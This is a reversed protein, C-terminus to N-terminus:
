RSQNALLAFPNNSTAVGEDSDSDSDDSGDNDVAAVEKEGGEVDDEEDDSDYDDDDDDDETTVDDVSMGDDGRGGKWEVERKRATVEDALVADPHEKWAEESYDPPQFTLCIRGDLAFRLIMNAGRYADPRGTRATLFGKKLAWAECMNYATWVKEDEPLTLDLLYPLDIREALFQVVSYPERLQAIPFSGMLVQMPKPVKSPFVLGPCDCLRVSETLYITQFHKTHGPTRSVSVVKKGCLSNIVSSKGVNPHGLTGITLRGDGGERGQRHDYPEHVVKTEEANTGEIKAQWSSLDIKDGFLKNCIGHIQQSAEKVISFVTKRQRVKMGRRNVKTGVLNYTPFSTFYVIHVGPYKSIFYNKWAAALPAPILDIKNLVVILQKGKSIIYQYLSPPFTAAAYRVDLIILLVDSKELVRWLQRWTELNLEFYSLEEPPRPIDINADKRWAPEEDEKESDDDDDDGEEEDDSESIERTSKPIDVDSKLMNTVYKRFERQENMELKEKNWNGQWDPRQPFTHSPLFYQETSAVSSAGPQLPQMAREKSAALELPTEKKFQLEYRSKGQARKQQPIADTFASNAQSHDGDKQLVRLNGKGAKGLQRQKKAVLQAKKKKGSFAKKPM